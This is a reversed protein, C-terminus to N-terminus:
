PFTNNGECFFNYLNVSCEDRLFKTGAFTQKLFVFHIIYYPLQNKLSLNVGPLLFLAYTFIAQLLIHHLPFEERLAYNVCSLWFTLMCYISTNYLAWGFLFMPEAFFPLGYSALDPLGMLTSCAQVTMYQIHLVKAGENVM